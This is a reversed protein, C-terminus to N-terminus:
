KRVAAQEEKEKQRQVARRYYGAQNTLKRALDSGRSAIDELADSTLTQKMLAHILQNREEKWSLVADLLEDSFYRRPLAKKEEAIKKIRKVKTDFSPEWGRRSKRYAGWQGAYCLIAETRDEMIAYAIFVAELYFHYRLAKKLRRFQEGYNEYKQMNRELSPANEIGRTGEKESLTKKEKPASENGM